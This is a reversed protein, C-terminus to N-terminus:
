APAGPATRPGLELRALAGGTAGAALEVRGDYRSAALRQALFLGMGSGSPKTTVHPTFLRPLVEPAVGPGQDSVELQLREGERKVKVLVRGDPPSAEVANVVLAQVMARLEQEVAALELGGEADKEVEIKVGSHQDQLAELAVDEAIAGLDVRQCEVDAQSSFVLFSRISRDLRRIQRRAAAALAGAEEDAGGEGAQARAAIEDVSLGLAHLPNRLSHALGRAIEGIEGLHREQLLRQNQQSLEFLRASMRNFAALAQRLEAAGAAEDLRLGLEGDGVAVAAQTLRLLPSSVRHALYGAALLGGLLLLVSGWLIRREFSALKEQLGLRPIPVEAALGPGRLQLLGQAPDGLRIVLTEEKKGSDAAGAEGAHHEFFYAYATAPPAGGATTEPAPAPTAPTGAAPAPLRRIIRQVIQREEKVLGKGTPAEGSGAGAAERTSVQVEVQHELGQCPPQPCLDPGPAALAQAVSAGVKLAVVDLEATLEGALSRVLWGHAGVLAAVLAGLVLFLRIRLSM